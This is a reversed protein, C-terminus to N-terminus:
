ISMGSSSSREFPRDMVVTLFDRNGARDSPSTSRLELYHPDFEAVAALDRLDSVRLMGQTVDALHRERLVRLTRNVHISTLGLSDAIMQQTFPFPCFATGGSGAAGSRIVVECLFHALSAVAPLISNRTLWAFQIGSQFLTEITLLRLIRPAKDLVRRIEGCPILRASTRTVAAIAGELPTGLFAEVSAWDGPFYLAVVQRAGNRTLAYRFLMGSLVLVASELGEGRLRVHAGKAIARTESRLEHLAGIDAACLGPSNAIAAHAESGPRQGAPAGSHAYTTDM